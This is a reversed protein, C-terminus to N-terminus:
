LVEPKLGLGYRWHYEEGYRAVRWKQPAALTRCLEQCRMFNKDFPRGYTHDQGPVVEIHGDLVGVHITKWVCAYFWTADNGACEDPVLHPDELVYHNWGLLSEELSAGPENSPKPEIPPPWDSLWNWVDSDLRLHAVPDKAIRKIRGL